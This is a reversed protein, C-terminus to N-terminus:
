VAPPQKLTRDPSPSDHTSRAQFFGDGERYLARVHLNQCYYVQRVGGSIQRQIAQQKRSVKRAHNEHHKPKSRKSKSKPCISSARPPKPSDSSRLKRRKTHCRKRQWEWLTYYFWPRSCRGMEACSEGKRKPCLYCTTEAVHTRARPRQNM